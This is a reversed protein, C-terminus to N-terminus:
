APAGRREGPLRALLAAAIAAKGRCRGAVGAGDVLLAEHDDDATRGADNVVVLDLHARRLLAGAAAVQEAEAAGATLKFGVLFGRPCLARLRDILKPARLLRLLLEPEDSPIKGPVPVPVYDAVAAAHLVADSAPAHEDLLGALDASTQFGLCRVGPPRSAHAAALLLVDHGAAQAVAALQAGLRGTSANAIVRVADIPERTGGATVLVRM